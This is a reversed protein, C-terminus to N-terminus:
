CVKRDNEVWQPLTESADEMGTGFKTPSGGTGVTAGLQEMIAATAKPDHVVRQAGERQYGNIYSLTQGKKFSKDAL